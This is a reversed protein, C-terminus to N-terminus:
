PDRKYSDGRDRKSAPVAVCPSCDHVKAASGDAVFLVDAEPQDKRGAEDGADSVNKEDGDLVGDADRKECAQSDRPHM